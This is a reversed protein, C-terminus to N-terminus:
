AAPPACLEANGGNVRAGFRRVTGLTRHLGGSQVDLSHVWDLVEITDCGGANAARVLRAMRLTHLLRAGDDTGTSSIVVHDANNQPTFQWLYEVLQRLADLSVPRANLVGAPGAEAALDTATRDVFGCRFVRHRLLASPDARPVRVIEFLRADVRTEVVDTYQGQWAPVRESWELAEADDDTCLEFQASGPALDGSKLHLTAITGTVNAPRPESYFGGPLRENGAYLRRALDLDPNAVSAPASASNSQAGTSPTGETGGGGGCATMAAALLLLTALRASM